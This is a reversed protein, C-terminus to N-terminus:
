TMFSWSLHLYAFLKILRISCCKRMGLHLLAQPKISSLDPAFLYTRGEREYQSLPETETEVKRVLAQAKESLPRWCTLPSHGRVEVMLSLM